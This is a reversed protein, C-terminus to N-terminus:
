QAASKREVTKREVTKREVTKRAARKKAVRAAETTKQRPAAARARRPKEAPAAVSKAHGDLSAALSAAQESLTALHALPLTFWFISGGGKRARMGMRGGHATVIERAAYLGLGIGPNEVNSGHTYPEFIHAREVVPVGVGRDRVEMRASEGERTLTLEIEGGSSYKTANSVLVSLVTELRMRDWNGLIPVDGTAYTLHVVHNPNAAGTTASVKALVDALDYEFETPLLHIGGKAVHFADLMVQLMYNVRDTQYLIRDLDALESEHSGLRRWRRQMLQIQGKLATIPVRLEHGTLDLFEEVTANRRVM